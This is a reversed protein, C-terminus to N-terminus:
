DCQLMAIWGIHRWRGDSGEAGEAPFYATFDDQAPETRTSGVEVLGIGPVSDWPGDARQRLLDLAWYLGVVVGETAPIGEPPLRSDGISFAARVNVRGSVPQQPDWWAVLPGVRMLVPFSNVAPVPEEAPEVAVDLTELLHGPLFVDVVALEWVVREGVEVDHSDGSLGHSPVYVAVTPVAGDECRRPDWM